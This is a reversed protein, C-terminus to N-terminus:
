KANHREWRRHRDYERMCIICVNHTYIKGRSKTKVNSKAKYFAVDESTIGCEKCRRILKGNKIIAM